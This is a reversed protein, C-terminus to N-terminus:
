VLVAVVGVVLCGWAWWDGSRTYVTTGKVVGYKMTSGLEEHAPLREVVRGAPDIMATIGDNTARLIWRRNEAARMRVLQLHQEYAASHGFYGDNSLNVLVEAGDKAFQRVLAPFASEYCIFAGLRHWDVQMVAIRDGAAFDGAEKTIRNVWGFPPPVFEGFPVLKIKDYRDLVAGDNGVLYASNLPDGEATRGVGGLLMQADSGRLLDALYSHFGPDAPYFPAPAEPWVILKEGQPKSLIAMQEELRRLSEPTFDEETDINPQVVRVEETGPMFEPLAPLVPAIVVLLIALWALEKRPRGLAAGALAAGLLAFVFSLGYVGTIPALRLLAPLGIGANGLDLWAFGFYEHTREIGTWLAAVAPIAWWRGMARGALTGFVAMHLGKLVAFLVFTVWALWRGLGGHVELVFQIWVCVGFWYVFGAAWGYLFRRKWSAERACGVVLPAIAVPALWYFNFPPFVLILLGASALSLLLNM